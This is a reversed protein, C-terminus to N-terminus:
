GEVGNEAQASVCNQKNEDSSHTRSRSRYLSKELQINQFNM